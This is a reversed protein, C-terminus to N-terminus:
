VIEWRALRGLSQGANRVICICREKASVKDANEMVKGLCLNAVATMRGEALNYNGTTVFGILDEEGPIVPYDAHGAKM